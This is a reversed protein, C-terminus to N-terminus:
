GRYIFDAGVADTGYIKQAMKELEDDMIGNNEIFKDLLEVAETRSIDDGEEDTLYTALIEEGDMWDKWEGNWMDNNEEVGRLINRFETINM